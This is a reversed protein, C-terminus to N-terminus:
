DGVHGEHISVDVLLDDRLWNRGILLKYSMRSRDRLNVQVNKSLHRWNLTLEVVYRYEVGQANRVRAVDVIKGELRKSVGQENEVTYSLTEGLYERDKGAPPLSLDYAHVSTSRAGSDIRALFDLGAEALHISATEGVVQKAGPVSSCSLVVLSSLVILIRTLIYGRKM